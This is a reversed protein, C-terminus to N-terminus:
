FIFNILPSRHRRCIIISARSLLLHCTVVSLTFKKRDGNKGEMVSIFEDETKAAKGDSIHLTRRESLDVFLIIYGLGKAVSTEEMGVTDVGSQDEDFKAANIYVDLVHWVKHHYVDTQSVKYAPM